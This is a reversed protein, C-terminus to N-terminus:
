TKSKWVLEYMYIYTESDWEQEYVYLYTECTQAPLTWSGLLDVM